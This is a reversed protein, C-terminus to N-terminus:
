HTLLWKAVSAVKAAVNQHLTYCIQLLARWSAGGCDERRSQFTYRMAVTVTSHGLLEKVMIIDAGGELLRSAFTHRLTHSTVGEVKTKKCALELGADLDVFRTSSDTARPPLQPSPELFASNM